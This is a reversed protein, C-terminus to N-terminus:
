TLAKTVLSDYVNKDIHKLRNEVYYRHKREVEILYDIRSLIKRQLYVVKFLLGCSVVIGLFATFFMIASITAM